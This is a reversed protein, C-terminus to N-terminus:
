RSQETIEIQKKLEQELEKVLLELDFCTYAPPLKGITEMWDVVAEGYRELLARRYEGYNGSKWKNCHVCQLHINRLDWRVRKCQRSIFHGVNGSVIPLLKKCSICRFCDGHLADRKLLIKRCLADLKKVLRKREKM